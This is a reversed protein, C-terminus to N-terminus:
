LNESNLCDDFTIKKFINGPGFCECVQMVTAYGDKKILLLDSLGKPKGTLGGTTCKLATTWSQSSSPNFPITLTM